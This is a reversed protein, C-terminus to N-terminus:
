LNGSSDGLFYFLNNKSEKVLFQVFKRNSMQFSQPFQKIPNIMFLNFEFRLKMDFSLKNRATTRNVTLAYFLIDSEETLM